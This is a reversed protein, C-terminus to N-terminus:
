LLCFVWMVTLPENLNLGNETEQLDNEDNHEKIMVEKKKVGGDHCYSDKWECERSEM